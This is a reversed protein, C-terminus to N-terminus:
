RRAAARRAYRVLAEALDVEGSADADLLLRGAEPDFGGFCRGISVGHAPRHVVEIQDGAGVTGERLV